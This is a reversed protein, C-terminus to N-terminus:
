RLRGWTLWPANGVLDPLLLEISALVGFAVSILLTVIAALGHAYILSSEVAPPVASNDRMAEMSEM